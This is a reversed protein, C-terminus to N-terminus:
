ASRLSPGSYKGKKRGLFKEECFCEAFRWTLVWFWEDVENCVMYLQRLERHLRTDNFYLSFDTTEDQRSELWV